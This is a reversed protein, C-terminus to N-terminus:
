QVGQSSKKQLAKSRKSDGAVVNCSPLTSKVVADGCINSYSRDTADFASHAHSSYRCEQKDSLISAQSSVACLVLFLVIFYRM